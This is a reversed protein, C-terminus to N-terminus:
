KLSLVKATITATIKGSGNNDIDIPDDDDKCSTLGFIVLSILIGRLLQSAIETQVIGFYRIWKVTVM